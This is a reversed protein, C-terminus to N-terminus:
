AWPEKLNDLDLPPIISLTARRGGGDLVYEVSRVWFAFPKPIFLTDSKANVISNARWLNGKPNYWDAVPFPMALADRLASARRWKASDSAKGATGEGQAYTIQRSAPVSADTVVSSIDKGDGSQGVVRYSSYFQRDDFKAKWEEPFPTGEELDAVAAGSAPRTFVVNGLNDKTVLVGRQTALRAFFAGIKETREITVKDFPGGTECEFRVGYGLPKIISAALQELTSNAYEYPPPMTSDMLDATATFFELTVRSGDKGKYPERSYIKGSAILEPGLYLESPSFSKPRILREFDPDAGPIRPLDVVWSDCMTEASCLARLTTVPFERGALVLTATGKARTAFRNVAGAAKAELKAEELPIMLVAGVQLKDPSAITQLNARHIRSWQMEDGYARAALKTLTDGPLVTYPQGQTPFSAM